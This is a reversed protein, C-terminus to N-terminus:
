GCQRADIRVQLRGLHVFELGAQGIGVLGGQALTKEACGHDLFGPVVHHVPADAIIARTDPRITLGIGQFVPVVAGERLACVPGQLQLSSMGPFGDGEASAESPGAQPPVVLAFGGPIGPAAFAKLIEAGILSLGQVGGLREM